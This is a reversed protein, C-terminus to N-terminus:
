RPADDVGRRRIHRAAFVVAAILTVAAMIWLEYRKIDDIIIELGHGFLYGACGVATAWVLAGAANLLIFKWIPVDSMGIVFPSITRLGYLFRFSIILLTHHRNLLKQLAAVRPLWAPHKELMKRSRSRGLFFYLQDGFFSGAFAALIVWALRLYGRHAAFGGLVLITEGELFTGLVLAPYGFTIIISELTM